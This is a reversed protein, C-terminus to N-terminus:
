CTHTHGTQAPSIWVHRADCADMERLEKLQAQKEAQLHKANALAYKATRLLCLRRGCRYHAPSKSQLRSCTSQARRSCRRSNRTGCCSRVYSRPMVGGDLHCVAQCVHLLMRTLQTWLRHWLPIAPMGHASTQTQLDQLWQDVCSCTSPSSVNTSSDGSFSSLAGLLNQLHRKSIKKAQQQRVWALFASSNM